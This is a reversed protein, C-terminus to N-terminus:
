LSLAQVEIVEDFPLNANRIFNEIKERDGEWYCIAKGTKPDWDTGHYKINPNAALFDAIAKKLGEAVDPPIQTPLPNNYHIVLVKAM